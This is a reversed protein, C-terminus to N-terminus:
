LPAVDGDDGRAVRLADEGVMVVEVTTASPPCAIDGGRRRGVALLSSFDRLRRSKPARSPLRACGVEVRVFGERVAVAVAVVAAAAVALLRSSM